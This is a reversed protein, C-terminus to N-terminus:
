TTLLSAKKLNVNNNRAISLGLLYYIATVIVLLPVMKWDAWGYFFYSALLLWLNQVKARNKMITFYPLLVVAFFAWFPISNVLM